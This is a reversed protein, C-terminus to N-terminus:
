QSEGKSESEQNKNTEASGWFSRAWRKQVRREPHEWFSIDEFLRNWNVPIDHSKLLAVIQRVYYHL